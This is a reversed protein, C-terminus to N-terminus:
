ANGSKHGFRRVGRGAQEQHVVMREHPPPQCLQEGEFLIESIEAVFRYCARLGERGQARLREIQHDRVNREAPDAAQVQELVDLMWQGLSGTRISEM